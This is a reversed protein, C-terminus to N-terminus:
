RRRQQEDDNEDGDANGKWRTYMRTFTNRALLWPEDTQAKEWVRRFFEVQHGETISDKFISLVHGTPALFKKLPEIIPPTNPPLPILLQQETHNDYEVEVPRAPTPVRRRKVQGNPEINELTTAMQHTHNFFAWLSGISWLYWGEKWTKPPEIVQGPIGMPPDDEDYDADSGDSASKGRKGGLYWPIHEPQGEPPLPPMAGRSNHLAMLRRVEFPFVRRLCVSNCEPLRGRHRNNVTQTCVTFCWEDVKRSHIGQPPNFVKITPLSAFPPQRQAPKPPLPPTSSSM